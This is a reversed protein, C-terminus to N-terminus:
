WLAALERPITAFVTGSALWIVGVIEDRFSGVMAREIVARMDAIQTSRFSHERDDAEARERRETELDQQTTKIDEHLRAV